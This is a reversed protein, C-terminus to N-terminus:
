PVRHLRVTGRAGTDESLNAIDLMYGISAVCGGDQIENFITLEKNQNTITVEFPTGNNDPAACVEFLVLVPDEPLPSKGTLDVIRKEKDAPVHFGMEFVPEGAGAWTQSGLVLLIALATERAFKM